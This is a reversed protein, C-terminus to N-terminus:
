AFHAQHRAWYEDPAFRHEQTGLCEVAFSACTSGMRAAETLDKGMVMGKILGARYADGAGTPDVVRDPRAAAIEMEKERTCVLSGEEGLTTIVAGTRALLEDREMGTPKRIMELEYDNSILLASGTIMEVLDEGSLAPISQGPDFIYPVQMEKFTRSYTRM